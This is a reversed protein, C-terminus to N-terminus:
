GELNMALGAAIVTAADLRCVLRIEGVSSTGIYLIKQHCPDDKM